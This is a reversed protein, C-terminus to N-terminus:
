PLDDPDMDLLKKALGNVTSGNTCKRERIVPEETKHGCDGCRWKTTNANGRPKMSNRQMSAHDCEPCVTVKSM